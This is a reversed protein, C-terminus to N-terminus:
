AANRGGCREDFQEHPTEVLAGARIRDGGGVAVHATPGPGIDGGCGRHQGLSERGGADSAARPDRVHPRVAGVPDDDIQRAEEGPDLVGRQVRIGRDGFLLPREGPEGRPRHDAAAARGRGAFRVRDDDFGATRASARRPPAVTEFSRAPPRERGVQGAEPCREIAGRGVAIGIGGARDQERGARRTM